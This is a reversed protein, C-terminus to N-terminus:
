KIATALKLVQENNPDRSLGYELWRVATVKDGAGLCGLGLAGALRGAAAADEPLYTTLRTFDSESAALEKFERWRELEALACLRVIILSPASSNITELFELRADLDGETAAANAAADEYHSTGELKQIYTKAVALNGAASAACFLATTDEPNINLAARLAEGSRGSVEGASHLLAFCLEQYADVSLPNWALIEEAKSKAATYDGNATARSLEAWMAPPTLIVRWKGKELTWTDSSCNTYRVGERVLSNWSYKISVVLYKDKGRSNVKLPKAGVIQWHSIKDKKDNVKRSEEREKKTIAERSKASLFKYGDSVPIRPQGPRYYYKVVQNIDGQDVGCGSLLGLALLCALSVLITQHQSTKM